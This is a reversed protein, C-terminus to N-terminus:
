DYKNRWILYIIMGLIIAIYFGMYHVSSLGLYILLFQVIFAIFAATLLGAEFGVSGGLTILIILFIMANMATWFYGGTNTNAVGLIDQFGTLASFNTPTYTM